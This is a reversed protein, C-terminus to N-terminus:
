KKLSISQAELRAVISDVVNQVEERQLTREPHSFSLRITITKGAIDTYTGLVTLKRILPSHEASVADLIPQCKEAVFTLDQEMGPFRSPESYVIPAPVIEALQKVDIEAFVISAKKDINKGVTPHVVGIEGLTQGDLMVANLNKPHEYAHTATMAAFTLPKHFIDDSAVCLMDRLRFYLTQVDETKSFLTICLKKHEKALGNEDVGDVTRGIEFIGFSPAYGTNVKAQCLQTPIMSRRLTEINPNSANLLKVNDEVPMGLKKYEDAYQWIYSHM